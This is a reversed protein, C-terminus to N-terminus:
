ILPDHSGAVIPPRAGGAAKGADGRGRLWRDIEDRPFLLKGSGRVHPIARERVLDYIRRERLRLYAAIERTDMMAPADAAPPPAPKKPM